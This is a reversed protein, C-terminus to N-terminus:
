QRVAAVTAASAAAPPRSRCCVRVLLLLGLLLLYALGLGGLLPLFMSAASLGASALSPFSSVKTQKKKQKKRDESRQLRLRSLHIRSRQKCDDVDVEIDADPIASSAASSSSASPAQFSFHFEAQFRNEPRACDLGPPVAPRPQRRGQSAGVPLSPNVPRFRHHQPEVKRHRRRRGPHDALGTGPELQGEPTQLLVNDGLDSNSCFYDRLLSSEN